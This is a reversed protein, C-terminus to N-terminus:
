PLVMQHEHDVIVAIARGEVAAVVPAGCRHGHEGGADVATPKIVDHHGLAARVAKSRPRSMFAPRPDHNKVSPVAARNAPVACAACGAAIPLARVIDSRGNADIGTLSARRESKRPPKSRPPPRTADNPM